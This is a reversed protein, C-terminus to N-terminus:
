LGTLAEKIGNALTDGGDDQPKAAATKIEEAMKRYYAKREKFYALAADVENGAHYHGWYCGGDHKTRHWIVFPSYANGPLFCFVVEASYQGSQEPLDFRDFVIAGNKLTELM